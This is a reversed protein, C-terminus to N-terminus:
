KKQNAVVMVTGSSIKAGEATTKPSLIKGKYVLKIDLPDV